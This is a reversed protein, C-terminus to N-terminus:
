KIIETKAPIAINAPVALMVCYESRPLNEMCAELDARDGDLNYIAFCTIIGGIFIGIVTEWWHLERNKDSM